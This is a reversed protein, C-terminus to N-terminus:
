QGSSGDIPSLPTNFDGVITPNTNVHTNKKYLTLMCPITYCAHIFYCVAYVKLYKNFEYKYSIYSKVIVFLHISIYFLGETCKSDM